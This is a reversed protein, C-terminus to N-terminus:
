TPQQTQEYRRSIIKKSTTHWDVTEEDEELPIIAFEGYRNTMDWIVLFYDDNTAFVRPEYDWQIRSDPPMDVKQLEILKSRPPLVLLNADRSAIFNVLRRVAKGLQEVDEELREVRRKNDFM